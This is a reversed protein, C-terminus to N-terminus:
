LAILACVFAFVFPRAVASAFASFLLFAFASAFCLCFCFCCRLCPRTCPSFCFSLLFSLFLPSLCVLLLLLLAFWVFLDNKNLRAARLGGPRTLFHRLAMPQHTSSNFRRTSSNVPQISSNFHRFLVLVVGPAALFSGLLLGLRGFVVGFRGWSSWFLSGSRCSSFLVSGLRDQSRRPGGWPGSWM